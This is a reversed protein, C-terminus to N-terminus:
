RFVHLFVELVVRWLRGSSSSASGCGPSCSLGATSRCSAICDGVRFTFGVLPCVLDKGLGFLVVMVLRVPRGSYAGVGTVAQLLLLKVGGGYADGVDVLFFVMRGDSIIRRHLREAPASGPVVLEAM